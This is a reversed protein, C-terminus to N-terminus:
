SNNWRRHRCVMYRPEGHTATRLVMMMRVQSFIRCLIEWMECSFLVAVPFCIQTIHYWLEIASDISAVRKGAFGCVSRHLLHLLFMCKIDLLFVVGRILGASDNDYLDKRTKNSSLLFRSSRFYKDHPLYRLSFLRDDAVRLVCNGASSTSRAHVDNKSGGNKILM